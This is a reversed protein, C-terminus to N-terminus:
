SGGRKAMFNEKDALGKRNKAAQKELVKMIEALEQREAANEQVIEELLEQGEIAQLRNEALLLRQKRECRSLPWDWHFGEETTQACCLEENRQRWARLAELGEAYPCPPTSAFEPSAFAFSWVEEPLLSATRVIVHREKTRQDAVELDGAALCRLVARLAANERRLSELEVEDTHAFAAELQQLTCAAVERRCRSIKDPSSECSDESVEGFESSATSDISGQSPQASGPKAETGKRYHRMDPTPLQLKPILPRDRVKPCWKPDVENRSSILEELSCPVINPLLDTAGWKRDRIVWVHSGAPVPGLELERNKGAEWDPCETSYMRVYKYELKVTGNSGIWLPAAMIWRPYGLPTTSLRHGPKWNGMETHRGVVAVAQGMKTEAHELEFVVAISAMPDESDFSDLCGPIM